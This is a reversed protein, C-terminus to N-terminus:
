GIKKMWGGWESDSDDTGGELEGLHRNSLGRVGAAMSWACGSGWSLRRRRGRGREPRIDIVADDVRLVM